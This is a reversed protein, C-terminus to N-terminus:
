VRDVGEGQAPATYVGRRLLVVPITKLIIALDLRVSYNEVYRIEWQLRERWSISNRGNIMALSTMGPRMELKSREESSYLCIAEAEDPRPGVISMDGMIVNFLQPLEDISTSRLLRGIRTVRSDDRPVVNAGQGDRTARLHAGVLMTRFKLITFPVGDKGLRSHLFLAPGPSTLRVAAWCLAYLPSLVVVAPVAVGLDMVRKVVRQWRVIRVNRDGKKRTSPFPRLRCRGLQRHQDAPRSEQSQDGERIALRLKPLWIAATGARDRYKYGPDHGREDTSWRCFRRCRGPQWSRREM